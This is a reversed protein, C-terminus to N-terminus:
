RLSIYSTNCGLREAIERDVLKPEHQDYKQVAQAMDMTNWENRVCNDAANYDLADQASKINPNKEVKLRFDPNHIEIKENDPGKATFGAIIALASAHRNYGSVLQLKRNGNEESPTISRTVVAVNNIGDKAMSLALGNLHAEPKWKWRPNESADVYIEDPSLYLFNGGKKQVPAEVTGVSM